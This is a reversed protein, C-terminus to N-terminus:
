MKWPCREGLGCQRYVEDVIEMTYMEEEFSALPPTDLTNFSDHDALYDLLYECCGKDSNQKIIMSKNSGAKRYTLENFLEPKFWHKQHLMGETGEITISIDMPEVLSAEIEISVNGYQIAVSMAEDVNSDFSACKAVASQVEFKADSDTPQTHDLMFRALTIAHPGLDEFAGGALSYNFQISQPHFLHAPWKAKILIRQVKGVAGKRILDRMKHNVPHTLASYASICLMHPYNEQQYDWVRKLERANAAMPPILICHKGAQMLKIQLDGHTAIPTFLIVGQIYPDAILEDYPSYVKSELFYKKICAEGTEVTRSGVASLLAHPHKNLSMVFLGASQATGGFVGLNM